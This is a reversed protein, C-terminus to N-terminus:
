QCSFRFQDDLDLPLVLTSFKANNSLQCLEQRKTTNTVYQNLYEANLVPKGIGIFAELGNCEIYEHCQENVSFDFYDLLYPIQDLDNKLAVSLNRQHAANALYKNFALQDNSNLNFGSDNTYGDVNDPEVGTCGKKVALDLRQAMINYVNVSRIDLWKEDEFGDLPKGLENQKFESKDIRWDEYSGASFYCIVKKGEAKLAQILQVSSDFLDIDYIEVPYGTNVVGKLQWQWTVGAVPRYWNGTKVAPVNPDPIIPGNIVFHEINSYESNGEENTAKVAVYFAAAQDFTATLSTKSSMGISGIYGADPYPAYFLTYSSTNPVVNWSATVSNANVIVTLVPAIPKGAFAIALLGQILSFIVMLFIKM